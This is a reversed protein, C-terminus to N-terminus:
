SSCIIAASGMHRPVYPARHWHCRVVHSTPGHGMLGVATAWTLLAFRDKQSVVRSYADKLDSAAKVLPDEVQHGYKREFLLTVERLLTKASLTAFDPMRGGVRMESLTHNLCELDYVSLGVSHALTRLVTTFADSFVFELWDDFTPGYSYALGQAVMSFATDLCCPPALLFDIAVALKSDYDAVESILVLLM